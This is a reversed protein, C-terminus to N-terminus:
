GRKKKHEVFVSFSSPEAKCLALNFGDEIGLGM